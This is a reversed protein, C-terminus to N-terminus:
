EEGVDAEVVGVLADEVQQQEVFEDIAHRSVNFNSEENPALAVVSADEMEVEKVKVDNKEEVEAVVEHQQRLQWLVFIPPPQYIDNKEEGEALVEASHKSEECM